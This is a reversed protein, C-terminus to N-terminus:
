HSEDPSVMYDAILEIHRADVGIGYVGFIKQIEKVVTTRAAEVGYTKLIAYIDNSEIRDLNVTEGAFDWMGHFNSGETMM